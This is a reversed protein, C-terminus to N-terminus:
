PIPSNLYCENGCDRDLAARGVNLTTNHPKEQGHLCILVMLKGSLFALVLTWVTPGLAERRTVSM